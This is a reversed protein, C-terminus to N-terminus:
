REDDDDFCFSCRDADRGRQSDLVIVQGAGFGHHCATDAGGHPGRDLRHLTGTANNIIGFEPQRDDGMAVLDTWSHKSM